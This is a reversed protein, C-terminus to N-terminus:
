RDITRVLIRDGTKLSIGGPPTVIFGDAGVLSSIHAPGHYPLPDVLDPALFRVPICAQRRAGDRSLPTTVRAEVDLPRYDHGMMRFVFPKVLLEFMVFAAVPNGPLGCCFVSDCKGFLTPRGPQIAVSKYVIEFGLKGLIGPVLDYDGTSVGGSVIILDSLPMSSRVAETMLAEDDALIGGNRPDGGVARIQSALQGGNGNRIQAAGPKVHPEVLESGTAFVTVRPRRAVLPRTAGVSAMVAIHAPTIRDGRRLVIDGSRIDEGRRCINHPANDHTFRVMDGDRNVHEQMVVTDAGVPVPAGTFIRACTGPRITQGPRRGAPIEDIVTLGGRWLDERRCAYGDMASKDFPPMDIDSVVDEALIRGDARELDIREGPLTKASALMLSKASEYAIM